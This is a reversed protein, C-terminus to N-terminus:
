RTPDEAILAGIFEGFAPDGGHFAAGVQEANTGAFAGEIEGDFAGPATSDLTGSFTNGSITATIDFDLTAPSAAPNGDIDTFSFDTASGGVTGAAFDATAAFDSTFDFAGGAPTTFSGVTHGLTYSATGTTPMTSTWDESGVLLGSESAGTDGATTVDGYAFFITILDAALDNFNVISVTNGTGGEIISSGTLFGIVENLSCVATAGCTAADLTFSFTAAGTNFSVTYTNDAVTDLDGDPGSGITIEADSTPGNTTQASILATEAALSTITFVSETNPGQLTTSVPSVVPGGGGTGGGGGGGACASVALLGVALFPVSSNRLLSM